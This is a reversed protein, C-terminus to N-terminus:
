FGGIIKKILYVIDILVDTLGYGGTLLKLLNDGITWFLIFLAGIIIVIDILIFIAAIWAM